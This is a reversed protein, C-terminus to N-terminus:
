AHLNRFMFTNMEVSEDPGMASTNTFMVEAYEGDSGTLLLDKLGHIRGHINWRM